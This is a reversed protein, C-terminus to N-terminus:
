HGGTSPTWEFPRKGAQAGDRDPLQQARGESDIHLERLQAKQESTLAALLEERERPALATRTWEIWQTQPM